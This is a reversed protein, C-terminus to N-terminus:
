EAELWNKLRVLRDSLKNLDERDEVSTSSTTVYGDIFEGSLYARDSLLVRHLGTLTARLVLSSIEDLLRGFEVTASAVDIPELSGANSGHGPLVRLHSQLMGIGTDLDRIISARKANSMFSKSRSKLSSLSPRVITVVECNSM